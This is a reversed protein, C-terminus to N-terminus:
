NLVAWILWAFLAPFSPIGVGILWVLPTGLYATAVDNRQRMWLISWIVCLITVVVPISVSDFSISIM